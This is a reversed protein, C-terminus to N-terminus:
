THVKDPEYPFVRMVKVSAILDLHSEDTEDVRLVYLKFM